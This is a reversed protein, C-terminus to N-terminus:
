LLESSTSSGASSSDSSTRDLYNVEELLRDMPDSHLYEELAKLQNRLMYVQSNTERIENLRADRERESNQVCDILLTEYHRAAQRSIYASRNRLQKKIGSSGRVKPPSNHFDQEALERANRRLVRRTLLAREAITSM